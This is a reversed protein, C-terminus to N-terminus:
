EFEKEVIKLDERIKLHQPCKSECGACGICDSAKGKEKISREYYVNAKTGNVDCNMIKANLARFLEPIPINKPCKNESVCYRCGTCSVAINKKIIESAKEIIVTELLDLPKFDKMYSINDKVQELNSMGSLVVKVKKKSAAFRIAWSAISMEHNFNTFLEKAELPINILSGGKIPEMVMVEKGYKECVKYCKRSQIEIDEWDLYNLQIQVYEVEPHEKLITELVDAKDHFSFGIHKIYGEEKKRKLFEFIELDKVQQYRRNSLHHIWYYDFYQVGCKELQEDFIREVDEKTKTLFIPMKDTITFSDRDYREVVAKRFAIESNGEHYPYATDFYSGGAQIFCDVMKIFEEMDINGQNNNIVPLRMLGFGLKNM